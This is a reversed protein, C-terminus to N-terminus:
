SSGFRLLPAGLCGAREIRAPLRVGGTGAPGTGFFSTARAPRHRHLARDCAGMMALRALGNMGFSKFIRSFEAHEWQCFCRLATHNLQQCFCRLFSFPFLIFCWIACM